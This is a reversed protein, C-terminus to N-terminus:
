GSPFSVDFITNLVPLDVNYSDVIGEDLWFISYAM